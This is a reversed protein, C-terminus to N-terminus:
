LLIILHIWQLPWTILSYQQVHDIFEFKLRWLALWYQVWLQVSPFSCEEIVISSCPNTTIHLLFGSTCIKYVQLAYSEYVLGCVHACLHLQMFTCRAAAKMYSTEMMYATYLDCTNPTILLYSGALDLTLPLILPKDTAFKQHSLVLIM